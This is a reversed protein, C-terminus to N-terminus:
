PLKSLQSCEFLYTIDYLYMHLVTTINFVFFNKKHQITIHMDHIFDCNDSRSTNWIIIRYFYLPISMVDEMQIYAYM